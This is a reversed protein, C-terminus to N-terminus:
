GKKSSHRRMRLVFPLLLIEVLIILSFVIQANIGFWWPRWLGAMLLFLVLAQIGVWLFYSNFVWQRHRYFGYSLIITLGGFFIGILLPYFHASLTIFSLGYVPRFWISVSLIIAVLGYAFLGLALAIVRPSPVEQDARRLGISTWRIGSHPMSPTKKIGRDRAEPEVLIHGCEGCIQAGYPNLFNCRPCHEAM